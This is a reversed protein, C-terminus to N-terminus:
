IKLNKKSEQMVAKVYSERCTKSGSKLAADRGAIVFAKKGLEAAVESCVM